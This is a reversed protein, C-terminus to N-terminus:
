RSGYSIQQNPPTAHETPQAAAYIGISALAGLVAGVVAALAVRM